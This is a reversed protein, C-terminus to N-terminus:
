ALLPSCTANLGRKSIASHRALPRPLASIDCSTHGCQRKNKPPLAHMSCIVHRADEQKDALFVPPNIFEAMAGNVGEAEIFAAVEKGLLDLAQVTNPLMRGRM